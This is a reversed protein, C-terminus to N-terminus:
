SVIVSEGDADPRVRLTVLLSDSTSAMPVGGEKLQGAMLLKDTATNTLFCAYCINEPTSGTPRFEPVTGVLEPQGADDISPALWTILGAAYGAYDAEADLFAQLLTDKGITVPANTLHCKAGNLVGGVATASALMHAIMDPFSLLDM